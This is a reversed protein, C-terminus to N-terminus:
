GGPKVPRLALMANVRGWSERAGRDGNMLKEYFGRDKILRAKEEKAWNHDQERIVGGRIEAEQEPTLKWQQRMWGIYQNWGEANRAAQQNNVDETSSVQTPTPFGRKHLGEWEARAAADGALLKSGFDADHIKKQITERAQDVTMKEIPIAPEAPMAAGRAPWLPEAAPAPTATITAVDTM